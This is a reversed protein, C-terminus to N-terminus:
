KSGLSGNELILVTKCCVVVVKVLQLMPRIGNGSSRFVNMSM